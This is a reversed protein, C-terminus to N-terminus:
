WVKITLMSKLKLWLKNKKRIAKGMNVIKKVWSEVKKKM